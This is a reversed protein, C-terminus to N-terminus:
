IEEESPFIWIYIERVILFVPFGVFLNLLTSPIIIREFSQSLTIAAGSIQLWISFATLHILTFLAICVFLSLLPLQWLRNNIWYATLSALLYVVVVIWFNEASIFGIMVGCFLSIWIVDQLHINKQVAWAIVTILLVDLNGNQIQIRGLIALQLM